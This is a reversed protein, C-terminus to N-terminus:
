KGWPGPADSSVYSEPDSSPKTPSSPRSTGNSIKQIIAMAQTVLNAADSAGDPLLILSSEKAIMEKAHIAKTALELQVAKQGAPTDAAEGIMVLAKAQADAVAVLAKAEGEARLVQEDKEAEAALVVSAKEGEARNIASQRDGESELIQARKVREAKMQAEM